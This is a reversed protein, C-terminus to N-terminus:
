NLKEVKKLKSFAKRNENTEEEREIRGDKTIKKIIITIRRKKKKDNKTTTITTLFEVLFFFKVLVQFKFYM